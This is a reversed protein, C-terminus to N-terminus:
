MCPYSASAHFYNSCLFASFIFYSLCREFGFLFFSCMTHLDQQKSTEVSLSSKRSSLDKGADFSKVNLGFGPPRSLALLIAPTYDRLFGFSDLFCFLGEMAKGAVAKKLLVGLSSYVLCFSTTKFNRNRLNPPGAM